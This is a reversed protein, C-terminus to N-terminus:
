RLSSAHKGMESGTIRLTSTGESGLGNDLLRSMIHWDDTATADILTWAGQPINARILALSSRTNVILANGEINVFRVPLDSPALTGARLENEVVGITKGAFSGEASFAANAATQSFNLTLSDGVTALGPAFPIRGATLAEGAEVAAAAVRPGAVPAVVPLVVAAINEAAVTSERAGGVLSTDVQGLIASAVVSNNQINASFQRTPAVEGTAVQYGTEAMTLPARAISTATQTLGTAVAGTKLLGSIQQKQDEAAYTTIGATIAEATTPAAYAASVARGAPTSAVSGTVTSIPHAAASALGLVAKDAGTRIADAQEGVKAVGAALAKSARDAISGESWTAVAASVGSWGGVWVDDRGDPDARNIPNNSCYRYRHGGSPDAATWRGLWPAMHRAGHYYLGTEDDKEKGTYRYRKASVEISSDRAHWSTSGFPHYEESWLPHAGVVDDNPKPDVEFAFSRSRPSHGASARASSFRENEPVGIRM